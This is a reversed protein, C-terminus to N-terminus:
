HLRWLASIERETLGLGKLKTIARQKLGEATARASVNAIHEAADRERQETEAPTLELEIEYSTWHGETGTDPDGENWERRSEIRTTM